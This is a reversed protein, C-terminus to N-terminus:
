NCYTKTTPKENKAGSNESAAPGAQKDAPKDPSSDSSASSTSSTSTSSTSTSSSQSSTGTGTGPATGSAGPMSAAPKTVTSTNILTVTTQVAQTVQKGDGNGTNGQTPAIVQCSPDTPHTSCFDPKPLVAECGAQNPTVACQELKPLIVQCGQLTPSGICQNMTPLVVACGAKTKDGVCQSITPLIGTCKADNPTVLCADFTRGIVAACGEAAPTVKCVSLQPLIADCGAGGPNTVCSLFQQRAIVATCGFVTPDASCVTVAPLVNACAPDTVKGMCAQVANHQALVPACGFTAPNTSCSEYKPLVAQCSAGSPDTICAQIANHESVAPGCGYTAPAAACVDYAPLVASCGAAKPNAVCADIENRKQALLDCSPTAPNAKCYDLTGGCSAAEPHAVCQKVADQQLVSDCGTAGPNTKCVDVTPMVDVCHPAAPNISCEKKAAEIVASCGTANPNAVCQDLNPAPPPDPTVVPPPTTSDPLHVKGPAATIAGDPISSTAAAVNIEGSASAVTGGARVIFGGNPVSLNINGSDSSVHASITMQSTASLSINGSQTRVAGYESSTSVTALGSLAQSSTEGTGLVVLSGTNAISISGTNKSPDEGNQVAGLLVMDGDNHINIPKEGAQNNVALLVNAETKLPATTSGIGASSRLEVDTAKVKGSGGIGAANILAAGGDVEFKSDLTLLGGTTLSMVRDSGSIGSLGDVDGVHLAGATRFRFSEDSKAALINIVNKAPLEVLGGSIALKDATIIAADDQFFGQGAKLSLTGSPMTFPAHLRLYGDGADLTLKGFSNGTLDVAAVIDLVSYSGPLGGITLNPSKVQALMSGTLSFSGEQAAGLLIDTGPNHPMLYVSSASIPAGIRLGDGKLYVSSATIAGNLDLLSSDESHLSALFNSTAGLNVPANIAIPGSSDISLHASQTIGADVSVGGTNASTGLNIEYAKFRSLASAQLWLISSDEPAGARVQIQRNATHTAFSITPLQIGAGDIDGNLAMQDAILDVYNNSKIAAGSALKFSRDASFLVSGNSSTVNANVNIDNGASGTISGNTALADTITLDHQAQLVVDTGTASLVSPAVKTAGTATSGGFVAVDAATATAGSQVVEIDYPDLLWTGAKGSTARANVALGNVDLNHGSTEVKGGDGGQAGGSASISGYASTANNSWLVVQGGNGAVQADAKISADKGMWTQSANPLRADKGQWGGGVLVNGGGAAGSADVAANGTLAVREGLLHVDGGKGAGTASTVSGQELLTDRSAKLVIKGNEGVVASNANVVGRQNVLAGYIGIRGGQAVVQGLNITQDTPASVVVHMDPDRSDVLQASHGAALVVDGQPSTIVGANTVNPAILFVQGGSPTTIAGENRVEGAAPGATFNKKGALFDANSLNLTSAVLGNVDVRAGQGFMIGNPNILFVKGNSQLAGLIRTPDQGVIRNLVASDAGQQIFRTIEGQGISFSQWNIITGPTNTISFVNGQQNFTAQGAVVQQGTPAAVAAGFCAALLLPVFRRKFIKTTM